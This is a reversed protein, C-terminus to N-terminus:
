DATVAPRKAQPRSTTSRPTTVVGPTPSIAILVCAAPATMTVAECLGDCYLPM